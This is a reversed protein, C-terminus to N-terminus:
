MSKKTLRIKKRMQQRYISHMGTVATEEGGTRNASVASM